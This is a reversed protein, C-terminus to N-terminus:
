FEGEESEDSSAEIGDDEDSDANVEKTTEEPHATNEDCCFTKWVKLSKTV